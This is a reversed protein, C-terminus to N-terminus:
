LNDLWGHSIQLRPISKSGPLIMLFRKGDPAVDYSPNGYANTRFAGEFLIEPEGVQLKPRTVIPIKLMQNELRYFLESGSPGWMAEAGGETTIQIPEGGSLFPLLYVENRGSRNSVFAIWHDDPSFMPALENFPTVVLPRPERTGDSPLIWIDRQTSPHVEYFALFKGDRTWSGPVQQNERLLLQKTTGGVIARSYLSLSKGDRESNFTVHKGDRTWTPFLNEGEYDPILRSHTAGEFIWIDRKGDKEVIRVAIKGDPSVRPYWFDQPLDSVPTYKGQRDVWVLLHDSAMGREVYLLSGTHSATFNAVGSVPHATVKQPLMSESGTVQLTELDFRIAFLGARKERFLKAYVLYGPSVYRADTGGRFLQKRKGTELSLVDIPAEKAEYSGWVTFLINQGGPLIEPWRHSHEGQDLDPKTLSIPTGGDAPVKKLGSAGSPAFVIHNDTGWAAGRSDTPADCVTNLVGRKLDITKLKGDAFFGIEQGNPSFFPNQAGRTGNIPQARFHDIAGMYLLTTGQEWATMVVLTGNPSIALPRSASTHLSNIKNAEFMYGGSEQIISSPFAEVKWPVIGLVFAFVLLPGNNRQLKKIEVLM